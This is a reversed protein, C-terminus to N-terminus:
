FDNGITFYVAGQGSEAVSSALQIPGFLTRAGIVASVSSRWQDESEAVFPRWVRGSELLAGVYCDFGAILKNRYLAAGLLVADQGAFQDREYGSLNYAGGLSAYRDVTVNGSSAFQGKGRLNLTYKGHSFALVGNIKFLDFREDSGLDPQYGEFRSSLYHGTRPVTAESLTDYTFSATLIGHQLSQELGLGVGIRGKL